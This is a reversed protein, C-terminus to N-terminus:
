IFPNNNPSPFLLSCLISFIFLSRRRSTTTRTRTRTMAGGLLNYFTIAVTDTIGGRGGGCGKGAEEASSTAVIRSPPSPPPGRPCATYPSYCISNTSYKFIVIKGRSIPPGHRWHFNRWITMLVVITRAAPRYQASNDGFGCNSLLEGWGQDLSIFICNLLYPSYYISHISYMFIVIKGRSILPRRRRDFNLRIM